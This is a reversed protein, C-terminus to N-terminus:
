CDISPSLRHVSSLNETCRRNQRQHECRRNERLCSDLLRARECEVIGIVVDQIAAPGRRRRARVGHCRLQEATSARDGRTRPYVIAPVRPLLQRWADIGARFRARCISFLGYRFSAAKEMDSRSPAFRPFELGVRHSRCSRVLRLLRRCVGGRKTVVMLIGDSVPGLEGLNNRACRNRASSLIVLGVSMSLFTAEADRRRNRLSPLTKNPPATMARPRAPLLARAAASFAPLRGGSTGSHIFVGPSGM